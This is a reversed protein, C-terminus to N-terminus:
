KNTEKNRKIVTSAWSLGVGFGSLLIHKMKKDLCSELMLPITSSVTNGFEAALFPAKKEPLGLKKRLNIVIYRSAQHLLFLDIADISLDNAKICAIIHQPIIRLAFNFVDKGDMTIKRSNADVSITKNRRGETGFLTKGIVYIPETSLLTCTAADGFLLETTYDLPDIVKSYPDATFLLAKRFGNGAMLNSLLNLCYVFGSCGLSVDFAAVTTPLNLKAHVISATHPLGFGDPNQTCVLISDVTQRDIKCKACLAEFAAVCMDSTEMEKEKRPLSVFGIKERIFDEDRGYRSGRALNDVKFGPVFSAISQIGIM